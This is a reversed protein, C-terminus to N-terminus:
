MTVVCSGQQNAPNVMVCCVHGPKTKYLNGLQLPNGCTPNLPGIIQNEPVIVSSWDLPCAQGLVWVGAGMITDCFQDQTVKRLNKAKPRWWPTTACEPSHCCNPANTTQLCQMASNAGCANPPVPSFPTFRTIKGTYVLSWINGCTGPQQFENICVTNTSRAFCSAPPKARPQPKPKPQEKAASVFGTWALSVLSIVCFLLSLRM